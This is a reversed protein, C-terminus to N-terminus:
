RLDIVEYQPYKDAPYTFHQNTFGANSKIDTISIRTWNGNNYLSLCIPYFTQKDITAVIISPEQSKKKPKLTVDWANKHSKLKTEAVSLDYGKKYIGLFATPSSTQLEEQTPVVLNVEGNATILNWQNTGDFWTKFAETQMTYKQGLIDMTGSFSERPITNEYFITTFKASIGGSVQMCKSSRDLIDLASLNKQAWMMSGSLAFSVLITLIKKM